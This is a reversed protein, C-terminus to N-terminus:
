IPCSKSELLLGAHTHMGARLLDERMPRDSALGISLLSGSGTRMIKPLLDLFHLQGQPTPM